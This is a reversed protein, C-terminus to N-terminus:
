LQEMQKETPMEETNETMAEEKQEETQMSTARPQSLREISRCVQMGLTLVLLVGLYYALLTAEFSTFIDIMYISADNPDMGFNGTGFVLNLVVGYTIISYMFVISKTWHDFDAKVQGSLVLYIGFLSCNMHCLAESTYIFTAEHNFSFLYTHSPSFLMAVFMGFCLFAIASHAYKRIKESMILTAPIVICMLPSINELIMSSYKGRHLYTAYCWCSFFVVGAIIFIMNMVGTSVKDKSICILTLTFFYFFTVIGVMQIMNM